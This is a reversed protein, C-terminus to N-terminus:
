EIVRPIHPGFHFRIGTVMGDVYAIPRFAFYSVESGFIVYRQGNDSWIETHSNRYWIYTGLYLVSIGIIVLLFKKVQLSMLFLRNKM